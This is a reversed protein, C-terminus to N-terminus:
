DQPTQETAPAPGSLPLARKGLRLPALRETELRDRYFLNYTDFPISRGDEPHVIHVCSKKVSRVDFGRADAFEMIIVRFLNHYGLEASAADVRPLCCLLTKLSAGAAGEHIGTSFLAFVAQKLAADREFSITSRAAGLLVELPVEGSLPTVQDGVKLLYAMAIADPHCPVPLVDQPRFVSTQALLKRRVESLTLRDRTPDFTDLRGAEQVPQFTVGRVSRHTLAHEVIAGLEGDNVGKQVTVVLTVPLDLEDCHGLVEAHVSRLDAGRLQLLAGKELSDFQLYLEFGPCYSALREAFARDKAIRIGNTNLMLHRIPRARAADLIAFLEPHLTPEGGSIQVVDPEGENRVVADLMREVTRLSRYGTREPGSNAYCVPCRLNCHDTIEIVSVCSHQEHDECLGCDYPCGYKVPTNYHQPMEPPKLFTERTARYYAIDDSILVTESGHEACRKIMLVREDQFVIKAEVRRLCTTCLSTTTSYFIYPRVRATM